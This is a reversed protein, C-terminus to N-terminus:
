SPQIPCAYMSYMSCRHITPNNGNNIRICNCIDLSTAHPNCYIDFQTIFGEVYYTLSAGGYYIPEEISSKSPNENPLDTQSLCNYPPVNKEIISLDSQSIYGIPQASGEYPYFTCSQANTNQNNDGLGNCVTAYGCINFLLGFSKPQYDFFLGTYYGGEPLTLPSLDILGEKTNLKCINYGYEGFTYTIFTIIIILFIFFLKM